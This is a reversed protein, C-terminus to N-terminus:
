QNWVYLSFAYKKFINTEGILSESYNYSIFFEYLIFSFDTWLLNTIVATFCYCRQPVIKNEIAGMGGGMM